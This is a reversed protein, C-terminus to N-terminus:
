GSTTLGSDDCVGSMDAAAASVAAVADPEAEMGRAAMASAYAAALRQAADSVPADATASARVVRDVVGPNMLTGDEVATTLTRCAQLGPTEEVQSPAAAVTPSAAPAPAAEDSCGALLVACGVVLALLSSRPM